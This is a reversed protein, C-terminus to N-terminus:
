RAERRRAWPKGADLADSRARYRYYASAFTGAAGFAFLLLLFLPATGLASDIWLGLLAFLVAPAVLEL